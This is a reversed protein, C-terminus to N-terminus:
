LISARNLLLIAGFAAGAAQAAPLGPRLLHLDDPFTTQFSKSLVLGAPIMLDVGVLVGGMGALSVLLTVVRQLTREEVERAM